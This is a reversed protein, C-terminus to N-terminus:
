SITFYKFTHTILQLVIPGFSSTYDFNPIVLANALMLAEQPLFYKRM